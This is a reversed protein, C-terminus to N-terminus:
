FIFLYCFYSWLFYTIINKGCIFVLYVCVCESVGGVNFCSSILNFDSTM